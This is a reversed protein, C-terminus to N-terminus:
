ATGSSEPHGNNRIDGSTQPEAWRRQSEAARSIHQGCAYRALAFTTAVAAIAQTLRRATGSDLRHSYCLQQGESRMAGNLSWGTAEYFWLRASRRKRSSMSEM